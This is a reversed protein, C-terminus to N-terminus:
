RPKRGFYGRALQLILRIATREAARKATELDAFRGRVIFPNGFVEARWPKEIAQTRWSRHREVSISVGPAPNAIWTNLTLQKWRYLLSGSM